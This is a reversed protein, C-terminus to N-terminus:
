TYYRGGGSLLVCLKKRVDFAYKYVEASHWERNGCNTATHRHHFHIPISDLPSNKECVEMSALHPYNMKPTSQRQVPDTQTCDVNEHRPVYSLM